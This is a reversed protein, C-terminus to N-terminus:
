KEMGLPLDKVLTSRASEIANSEVNDIAAIVSAFRHDFEPIFDASGNYRLKELVLGISIERTPMGPAVGLLEKKEDLVVRNALGAEVLQNVAETVLSLPLGYDRAIDPEDLPRRGSEFRNVIVTLVAMLIKRRYDISIRAIENSFSFQFINQSSYCLVAGSLSILWVLQLWILLLPLFAFSGYIANYRTVYLQGSVFLWQLITFATGALIGAIMANKFKVRTNPVMIYLGAFFFWVLVLSMFDLLWSLLPSIFEYPLATQLTSSMFVTIGSACIMLVPLILFIATYDTVKRWYSRGHKIGWIRNFSDEVSGLLSILTYLLFVIGVGVFIGESSQSLYSEVFSFAKELAIKQSPFYNFLQTQLINQFGFGRGIAFILALAPVIALLTRYTMAAAQSQLDANLFSRVSLNLTKIIDVRWSTRTDSWVGGTYYDYQRRGWTMIRQLLGSNIKKDSM